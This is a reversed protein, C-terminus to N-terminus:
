SFISFGASRWSGRTKDYPFLFGQRKLSLTKLQHVYSSEFKWPRSVVRVQVTRTQWNRWVHEFLQFIYYVYTRSIDIFFHFFFFCKKISSVTWYVALKIWLFPEKQRREESHCFTSIGASSGKNQPSKEFRQANQFSDGSSQYFLFCRKRMHNQVIAGIASGSSLKQICKNTERWPSLRLLM